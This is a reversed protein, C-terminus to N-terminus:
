TLLEAVPFNMVMLFRQMLFWHGILEGCLCVVNSPCTTLSDGCALPLILLPILVGRGHYLIPLPILVGGNITCFLTIEM